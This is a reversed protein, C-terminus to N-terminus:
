LHLPRAKIEFTLNTKKSTRSKLRLGKIKKLIFHEARGLPHVQGLSEDGAGEVDLLVLDIDLHASIGQNLSSLGL